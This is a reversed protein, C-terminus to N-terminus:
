PLRKLRSILQSLSRIRGSASQKFRLQATAAGSGYPCSKSVRLYARKLSGRGIGSNRLKGSYTTGEAVLSKVRKFVGTPKASVALESSCAGSRDNVSSVVLDFAGASSISARKIMPPQFRPTATPRPQTVEPADMALAAGAPQPDFLPDPCGSVVRSVRIPGSSTVMGDPSYAKVEVVNEGLPWSSVDFAGNFGSNSSEYQSPAFADRAALSFERPELIGVSVGGRLLEVATVREVKDTLLTFGKVQISSCVSQGNFPAEVNLVPSARQAAGQNRIVLRGSALRTATNLGDQAVAYLYYSGDAIGNTQLIHVRKGSPIGSAVKIGGSASASTALFLDVLPTDDADVTEILISTSGTDATVDKTLKVWDLMFTTQTPNGVPAGESGCTDRSFEHPDVRFGTVNGAWAQPAEGLLNMKPLDFCYEYWRSGGWRDYISIAAQTDTFTNDANLWVPKVISGLCVDLDRQILLKMCLNRYSIADIISPDSSYPFTFYINPDDNGLLNTGKLFDGRNGEVIRVDPLYATLSEAPFSPDIDKALNSTLVADGVNMNWSQFAEGGQKDPRLISILPPANQTITGSSSYVVPDALTSVFGNARLSVFDISFSQGPVTVPRVILERITGSWSGVAGLDLEYVGDANSDTLESVGSAGTTTNWFLAATSPSSQSLKMSFHKFVSADIGSSGVRLYVSPVSSNATGSLVSGNSSLSSLGGSVLVDNLSQMDWPDENTLTAYDDHLFGVIRYPVGRDLGHTAASITAGIGTAPQNHVLRSIYGDLPNDNDDLFLSHRTGDANPSAQYTVNVTPCSAPDELRIYDISIQAGSLAAPMVALSTISGASWPNANSSEGVSIPITPMDFRYVHWGAKSAFRQTVTRNPVYDTGRNFIFRLGSNPEATDTYMRIALQRYKQARSATLDLDQGYRGGSLTTGIIKPSFLYFTAANNAEIVASFRGGVFRPNGLASIDGSIFNNIDASNSMDWPDGYMDTALDDCARIRTATSPSTITVQAAASTISVLLSLTCFIGSTLYSFFGKLAFM